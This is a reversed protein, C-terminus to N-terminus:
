YEERQLWSVPFFSEIATGLNQESALKYALQGLALDLISARDLHSKPLQWFNPLPSM